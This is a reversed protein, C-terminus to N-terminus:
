RRGEAVVDPRRKRQRSAPALAAAVTREVPRGAARWDPLGDDTRRARFGHQRLVEVAEVSYVCWPGRCYAIVEMRKPLGKLRGELEAVPASLAGPIHGADYEERPRVDLVTVAGERQLRRLEDLTM